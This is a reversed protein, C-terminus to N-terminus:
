KEEAEEITRSPPALTSTLLSAPCLKDIKMFVPTSASISTVIAIINAACSAAKTRSSSVSASCSPTAAAIFQSMLSLAAVLTFIKIACKRRGNNSTQTAPPCAKTSGIIASAAQGVFTVVQSVYVVCITIATAYSDKNSINWWYTSPVKTPFPLSPATPAPTTFFKRTRTTFLPAKTTTVGTPPVKVDQWWLDCSAIIGSVGAPFVDMAGIIGLVGAACSAPAVMTRSCDTIAQGILSGMIGFNYFVINIRNSCLAREKTTTLTACASAARRSNMVISVLRLGAQTTDIFCNFDDLTDSREEALQMAEM